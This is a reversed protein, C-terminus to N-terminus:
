SVDGLHPSDPHYRNDCAISVDCQTAGHVRGTEARFAVKLQFDQDHCACHTNLIDRVKKLETKPHM